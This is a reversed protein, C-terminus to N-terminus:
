DHRVLNGNIYINKQCLWARVVEEFIRHIASSLVLKIQQTTRVGGLEYHFKAGNADAGTSM